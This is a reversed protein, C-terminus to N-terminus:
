FPVDDPGYGPHPARKDAPGNAPHPISAIGSELVDIIAGAFGGAAFDYNDLQALKYLSHHLASVSAEPLCGQFGTLERVLDRGILYGARESEQGHKANNACEILSAGLAAMGDPAISISVAKGECSHVTLLGRGVTIGGDANAYVSNTIHM